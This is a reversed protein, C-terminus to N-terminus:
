NENHLSLLHELAGPLVDMVDKKKDAALERTAASTAEFWNHAIREPVLGPMMLGSGICLYENEGHGEECLCKVVMTELTIDDHTLVSDYEVIEVDTFGVLAAMDTVDMVEQIMSKLAGDSHEFRKTTKDADSIWYM